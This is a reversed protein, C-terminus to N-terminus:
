AQLDGSYRRSWRHTMGGKRRRPHFGRARDDDVAGKKQRRGPPRKARTDRTDIDRL